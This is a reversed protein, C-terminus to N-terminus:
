AKSLQPLEKLAAIADAPELRNRYDVDAYALIIKRDQDIVFTAPVPLQWDPTGNVKPLVHNLETYLKQLEDPLTFALGYSEAVNSGQDSLVEFELENKEATSLSTDPAQPSIALLSAGAAKIKPLVQQYARLELNCYPCWGGRYFNLIVPGERLAETLSAQKGTANPLTFEPASDGVKLAPAFTKELAATAQEMIAAKDAPFKEIFEAKFADLQAKLTM